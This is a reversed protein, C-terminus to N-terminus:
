RALSPQNPTSSGGGWRTPNKAANEEDLIQQRDKLIEISVQPAWFVGVIQYDVKGHSDDLNMPQKLTPTGQGQTKADVLEDPATKTLDDTISYTGYPVGQENTVVQPNGEPLPILTLGQLEMAKIFEEAAWRLKARLERGKVGYEVPFAARRTVMMHPLDSQVAVLPGTGRRTSAVYRMVTKTM